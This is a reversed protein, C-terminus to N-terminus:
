FLITLSLSLHFSRASFCMGHIAVITIYPSVSPTGTDTYAIQVGLDNIVITEFAM